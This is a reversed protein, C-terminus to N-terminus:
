AKLTPWSNMMSPTLYRHESHYKAQQFFFLWCEVCLEKKSKAEANIKVHLIFEENKISGIKVTLESM